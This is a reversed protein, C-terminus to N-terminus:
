FEPLALIAAVTHFSGCVVVRDGPRARALARRYAEVVTAALERQAHPVLDELRAQLTDAVLGRPVDLGALYWHDVQSVLPAVFAAVDKDALMALVLHTRGAVPQAALANALARVVHPQGVLDEFRSPRWKRALVQHSM